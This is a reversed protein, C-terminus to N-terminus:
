SPLLANFPDAIMRARSRDFAGVEAGGDGARLLIEVEADGCVDVADLHVGNLDVGACGCGVCYIVDGGVM